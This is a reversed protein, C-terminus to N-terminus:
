LKQIHYLNNQYVIVLEQLKIFLKDALKFKFCLNINIRFLVKLYYSCNLKLSTYNTNVNKYIFKAM